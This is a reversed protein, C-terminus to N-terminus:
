SHATIADTHQNCLCKKHYLAWMQESIGYTRKLVMCSLCTVSFQSSTMLHFCKRTVPWKHPSNVRWRHSGRVFALSVSSQHKRQDAASYFTSPVITLGTILSAMAGNHRWQLFWTILGPWAILLINRPKNIKKRRNYDLFSFAAIHYIVKSYLVPILNQGVQLNTYNRSFGRM